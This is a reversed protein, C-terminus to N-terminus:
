RIITGDVTIAIGKRIKAPDGHANKGTESSEFILPTLNPDKIDGKFKGACADNMAYGYLGSQGLLDPRVLKKEAEGKNLDATQLRTDIADMWGNGEPFHDESDSYLLMATRMRRLNEISNGSYDHTKSDAAQEQYIKIATLVAKRQEPFAVALVGVIVIPTICGIAWKRGKSM